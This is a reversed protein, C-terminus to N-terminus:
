KFDAIIKIINQIYDCEFDLVTIAISQKPNSFKSISYENPNRIIIQLPHLDKYFLVGHHSIDCCHLTQGKKPKFCLALFTVKYVISGNHQHFNFQNFEISKIECVEFVYGVDMSWVTETCKKIKMWINNELDKFDLPHVTVYTSIQKKKAFEM